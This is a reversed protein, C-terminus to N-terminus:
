FVVEHHRAKKLAAIFLNMCEQVEEPTTKIGYHETAIEYLAKINEIERKYIYNRHGFYSNFLQMLQFKSSM